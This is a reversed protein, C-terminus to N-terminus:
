GDGGAGECFERLTAVDRILFVDDERHYRVGAAQIRQFARSLTEPKMGLESAVIKKSYPLHIRVAGHGASTLGLLYTALRQATSKMKLDSIQHVLARLQMSMVGLMSLVLDFRQELLGCFPEGPIAALTVPTLAEATVPYTGLGCIAAEAFTEGPGVIRAISTLDQTSDLYLAVRGDLVVFFREAPEGKRFVIAGARHREESATGVVDHLHETPLGACLPCRRLKEAIGQEL